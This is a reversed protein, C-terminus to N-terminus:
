KKHQWCLGTTGRVKRRCPHGSKTPAGCLHFPEEGVQAVEAAGPTGPTVSQVTEPTAPIAGTTLKPM